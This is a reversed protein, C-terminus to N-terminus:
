YSELPINLLGVALERGSRRPSFCRKTGWATVKSPEKRDVAPYTSMGSGSVCLGSCDKLAQWGRWKM